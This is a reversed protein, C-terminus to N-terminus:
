ISEGEIAVGAGAQAATAKPYSAKVGLEKIVAADGEILARELRAGRAMLGQPSPADAPYRILGARIGYQLTRVRPDTRETRAGLFHRACALASQIESQSHEPEIM